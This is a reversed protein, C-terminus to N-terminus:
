QADFNEKFRFVASGNEEFEKILYTQIFKDTIDLAKAFAKVNAPKSFIRTDRFYQLDRKIYEDIVIYRCKYAMLRKAFMEPSGAELALSLFHSAEFMSDAFFPQPCYYGKNEFLFLVPEGPNCVKGIYQLCPYSRVRPKLFEDRTQRGFIAPFFSGERAAEPYVHGVVLHVPAIFVLLLALTYLNRSKIVKVGDIGAAACLTLLPLAPILFRVQQAGLAWLLFYIAFFLFSLLAVGYNKRVFIILPLFVLAYPYLTGAFGRYGLRLGSLFFVRIDLLVYDKLSRGMGISHQWDFLWSAQQASWNRGGFYKFMAPYTPNGTFIINKIFWPLTLLFTLLFFLMLAVRLNKRADPHLTVEDSEVGGKRRQFIRPSFLFLLFVAIAGFVMTYKAGMGMGAFLGMLLAYGTRGTKVYEILSAVTWFCFLALGVDVFAVGFEYYVIPNCIFLLPAIIGARVSFYRRGFAYLSLCLLCGLAYHLLKATVDDGVFMAELFMIDINLPMNSYVNLAIHTFGHHQLYIKPILLHYVLADWSFPPTLACYLPYLLLVLLTIFLILTFGRLNEMLHHTGPIIEPLRNVLERVALYLPILMLPLFINWGHIKILAFFTAYTFLVFGTTTALCFNFVSCGSLLTMKRLLAYGLGSALGILLLLSTVRMTLTLLNALPNAGAPQIHSFYKLSIYLIFFLGLGVRLRSRSFPSLEPTM